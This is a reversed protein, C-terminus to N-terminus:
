KNYNITFKYTDYVAPYSNTTTQIKFWPGPGYEHEWQMREGEHRPEVPIRQGGYIVETKIVGIRQNFTLPYNNADFTYWADGSFAMDYNIAIVGQAPETAAAYVREIPSPYFLNLNQRVVYNKSRKGIRDILAFLSYNDYNYGSLEYGNSFDLMDFFVTNMDINTKDNLGASYTRTERPEDDADYQGRVSIM